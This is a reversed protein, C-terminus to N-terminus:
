ASMEQQKFAERISQMKSKDRCIEALERHRWVYEKLAGFLFYKDPNQKRLRDGLYDYQCYINFVENIPKRVLYNEFQACTDFIPVTYDGLLHWENNQIDQQQETTPQKAQNDLLQEETNIDRQASKQKPLRIFQIAFKLICLADGPLGDPIQGTAVYEMIAKFVIGATENSAAKLNEVVIQPFKISTKM